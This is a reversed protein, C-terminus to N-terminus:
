VPPLWGIRRLWSATKALVLDLSQPSWGLEQRARSSDYRFHLGLLELATPTVVELRHFRDVLRAGAVLAAWTGRGPKLVRRGPAGPRIAAEIRAVLEGLCLNEDTLLYRRGRRGKALALLMGAAVDEVGVASLSGPAAIRGIPSHEVRQFVHATNSPTPAEGFIAGPNVVVVDLDDRGLALEEAVRKTRMYDSVFPKGTVERVLEFPAEEDITSRADPAVGVAVVSSVLLVRDIGHRAAADLVHRTGEVNVADQLPGSGTKYSIVAAGHVLATARGEATAALRAVAADVEGKSAVDGLCWDIPLEALHERKSTPRALAALPHGAAHAARLFHGGVFGTAGTVLLAAPEPM